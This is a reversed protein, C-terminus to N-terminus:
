RASEAMKILDDASVAPNYTWLLYAVDDEAWYLSLGNQEDWEFGRATPEGEVVVVQYVRWNWDGRVLVAPDGQVEVEEFSGPAVPQTSVSEYMPNNTVGPVRFWRYDLFIGIPEGGDQSTWSASLSKESWPSINMKKDLIFGNPAWTPFGFAFKLFSKAEMLTGVEMDGAPGKWLGSEIVLPQKPDRHVDVWIEGVQNWRKEVVAYVCAAVLLMLMFMAGTNRLTLKNLKPMAFRPQSQRSIREYLAEAFEARPAERFHTLFEDNM